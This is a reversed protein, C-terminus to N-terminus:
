VIYNDPNVKSNMTANRLILSSNPQYDNNHDIENKYKSLCYVKLNSQKIKLFDLDLSLLKIEKDILLKQQSLSDILLQTQNIIQTTEKLDFDIQRNSNFIKIEENTRKQSFNHNKPLISNQYSNRNSRLKDIMLLCTSAIFFGLGIFSMNSYLENSNLQNSSIRSYRRDFYNPYLNNNESEYLGDKFLQANEESQINSSSLKPNVQNEILISPVSKPIDNVEIKKNETTAIRNLTNISSNPLIIQNTDKIQQNSIEANSEQKNISSSVTSIELNNPINGQNISTINTKKLNNLSIVPTNEVLNVSNKELPISSIEDVNRNEGGLKPLNLESNTPFQEESNPSLSNLKLRAKEISNSKNESIDQKSNNVTIKENPVTGIQIEKLIFPDSSPPNSNIVNNITNKQNEIMKKLSKVEKLLDTNVASLNIEDFDINKCQKNFWPKVKSNGLANASKWDLCALKLDGMLEHTIGRNVYAETLLPNISIAKNFDAIAAKNDSLAGKAVGRNSFAKAYNPDILIAKNLYDVTENLQNQKGKLLAIAMYPKAYNPDVETAINYNKMSEAINNEKEYAKGLFYYISPNDPFDVSKKELEIIAEKYRGTKILVIENSITSENESLANQFTQAKISTNHFLVFSLIPLGIKSLDKIITM